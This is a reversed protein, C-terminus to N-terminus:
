QLRSRVGEAAQDGVAAMMAVPTAESSSATSAYLSGDRLPHEGIRCWGGGGMYRWAPGVECATGVLRANPNAQERGEGFCRAGRSDCGRLV